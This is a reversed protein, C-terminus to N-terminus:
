VEIRDKNRCRQRDREAAKHTFVHKILKKRIAEIELKLKGMRLFKNKDKRKKKQWGFSNVM